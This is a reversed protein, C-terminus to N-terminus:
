VNNNGGLNQYLAAVQQDPLASFRNMNIVARFLAILKADEAIQGLIYVIMDERSPM